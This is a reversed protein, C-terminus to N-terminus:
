KAVIQKTVTTGDDLVFTWEEWSASSLDNIVIPKDSVNDWKTSIDYTVDNVKIQDVNAM